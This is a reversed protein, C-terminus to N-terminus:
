YAFNPKAGYDAQQQALLADIVGPIDDFRVRPLRSNTSRGLRPQSRDSMADRIEEAVQQRLAPILTDSLRTALAEHAFLWSDISTRETDFMAELAVKKEAPTRTDSQSWAAISAPLKENIIRAADAERGERRWLCAQRYDAVIQKWLTQSNNPKLSQATM